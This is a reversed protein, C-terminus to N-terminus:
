RGVNVPGRLHLRGTFRREAHPRAQARVESRYPVCSAKYPMVAEGTVVQAAVTAGPFPFAPFEAQGAPWMRRPTAHRPSLERLPGGSRFPPVRATSLRVGRHLRQSHTTKRGGPIGGQPAPPRSFSSNPRINCGGGPRTAFVASNMRKTCGGQRETGDRAPGPFCVGFGGTRSRRRSGVSGGNADALLQMALTLRRGHSRCASRPHRWGARLSGQSKAALARVM